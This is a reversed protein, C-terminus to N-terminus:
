YAGYDSDIDSDEGLEAWLEEDFEEEESLQTSTRRARRSRDFVPGDDEIKGHKKEIAARRRRLNALAKKIEPDM